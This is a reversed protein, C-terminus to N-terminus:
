DIRYTGEYDLRSVKCRLEDIGPMNQHRFVILQGLQATRMMNYTIKSHLESDCSFRVRSCSADLRARVRKTERPNVTGEPKRLRFAQKRHPYGMAKWYEYTRKGSEIYDQVRM